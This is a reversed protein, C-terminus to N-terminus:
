HQPLASPGELMVAVKSVHHQWHAIGLAESVQSVFAQWPGQAHCQQLDRRDQVGSARKPMIASWAM